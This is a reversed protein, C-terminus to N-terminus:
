AVLHVVYGVVILSGAVFIALVIGEVIVQIPTKDPDSKRMRYTKFGDAVLSLGMAPVITLRPLGLAPVAFWNWNLMIAFGFAFLSVVIAIPIGIIGVMCGAFSPKENSM